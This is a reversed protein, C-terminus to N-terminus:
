RAAPLAVTFSSGRGLESVVEIRGRAKQVINQCVSLGLGTGVGAPKTTFFPDFIRPLHAPDIGSGTDEVTVRVEDGVAQTRVTLTNRDPDGEPMSQVANVILNLFIQGLREPSAQVRPVPELLERVRARFRLQPMAMRLAYGLAQQVDGPQLDNEDPVRAFTRLDELIARMRAVGELADGLAERLETLEAQPLTGAVLAGWADHVFKLNSQVYALPNNIEHGIGAALTGLAAMRDALQLRAELERRATIDRVFLALGRQAAPYAQVEHWRRPGVQHLEVHVPTREETCRRLASWLPGNGAATGPYIQELERGILAQRPQGIMKVWAENVATIKWASDVVLFAEDMLEVVDILRKTDREREAQALVNRITAILEPFVFPKGVVAAADIAKAAPSIDATIVVVPIAHLDPRRKLESRVAWGDMAPMMLDLLILDPRAAPDRLLELAIAGDEAQQVAFGELELLTALGERIDQSDEIILVGKRHDAGNGM